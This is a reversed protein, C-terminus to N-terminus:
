SKSQKKKLFGMVLARDEASADQFLHAFEISEENLNNGFDYEPLQPVYIETSVVDPNPVLEAPDCNFVKAFKLINRQKVDNINKEIKNITSKSSYGMKDALQEQTWGRAERYQKIIDGIM